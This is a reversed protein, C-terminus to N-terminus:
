GMPSLRTSRSIRSFPMRARWLRRKLAVVSELCEIGTASLRSLRCNVGSAGFYSVFDAQSAGSTRIKRGKLDTLGKLENRCFMVQAQFSFM